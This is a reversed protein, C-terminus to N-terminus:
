CSRRDIYAPVGLMWLQKKEGSPSVPFFAKQFHETPDKITNPQCIAASRQSLARLGTPTLQNFCTPNEMPGVLLRQHM